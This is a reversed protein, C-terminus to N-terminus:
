EDSYKELLRDFFESGKADVVHKPIV